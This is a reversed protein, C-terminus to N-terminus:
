VAVLVIANLELIADDAHFAGALHQFGARKGVAGRVRISEGAGIAALNDSGSLFKLFKKAVGVCESGSGTCYV